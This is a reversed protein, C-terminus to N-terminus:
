DNIRGKTETARRMVIAITAVLSISKCLMKIFYLIVTNFSRNDSHTSVFGSHHAALLVEALMSIM